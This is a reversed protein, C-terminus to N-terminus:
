SIKQMVEIIGEMDYSKVLKKLIGELEKGGNEMNGLQDISNELGTISYCDAAKLIQTKIEPPIKLKAWDVEENMEQVTKVKKSERYKYEIDLNEELVELVQNHHFPKPVYSDFGMEIYKEQHHRLTSATICIIKMDSEPYKEKIAEFAEVGDMVPMRIDMFIIDPEDKEIKELAVQGNEAKVVDVGLSHLFMALVDRNEKVDDVVLAHIKYGDKIAVVDDYKSDQKKASGPRRGKRRELPLSFFFHSGKGPESEVDLEGGMQVVQKRSIALGLGTGGKKVGEEDQQFPEFIHEVADKPIGPGTDVVEFLYHNNTEQKSFKCGVSGSETFKVANGILNILVQRLKGLDGNVLNEDEPYEEMNLALQKEGCRASFVSRLENMLAGLDFDEKNIEQKGAEIKSIDLIDNILGLLHNGSKDITLIAEYQEESLSEDRKLIQAYGLVANLPTRIEHSMNALFISKSQNAKDADVKAVEAEEKAVEAQTRASEAARQARVAEEKAVEAQTRASEAARQARVAEEKKTLIVKENSQIQGVMTEFANGLDSVEDDSEFYIKGPYVGKSIGESANRLLKIPKSINGALWFSSFLSLLVVILTGVSTLTKTQFVTREAELKRVTMLEREAQRFELLQKRLDDMIRKGTGAEILSTVDEMTATLSDVDRRAQIEPIAAKAMWLGVLEEIRSLSRKLTRKGKGKKILAKLEGLKTDFVKQGHTYPELSIEKGTLLFGRQGTEMDVLAKLAEISLLTAKTNKAAQFESSMTEFEYRINDFIEKGVTRTHLSKFDAVAKSNEAVEKRKKIAPVGAKTKWLEILKVIEELREVQAPNDSVLAKTESVVSHLVTNASEYPELFGEKGAILYGRKGTELDVVLKEILYSKKLVEHTHEVWHGTSVLSRISQNSFFALLIVM